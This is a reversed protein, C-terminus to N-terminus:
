SGQVLFESHIDFQQASSCVPPLTQKEALAHSCCHVATPPVQWADVSQQSPTHTRCPSEPTHRLEQSSLEPHVLPQQRM